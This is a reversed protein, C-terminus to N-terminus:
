TSSPRSGSSLDIGLANHPDQVAQGARRGPHRADDADRGRYLRARRFVEPDRAVLASRLRFVETVEPNMILDLYRQRYRLEVDQLGHWKEPLPHLCKALFTFSACLVTLEGTRTKFLTGRVSIVDGIDLLPFLEYDQAGAMDERIYVQLRSRGDSIHFFTARGMKRITLDPGPGYAQMKEELEDKTLAAFEAVIAPSPTPGDRGQASVTSGRPALKRFKDERALDQDANENRDGTPSKGKNRTRRTKEDITGEKSADKGAQLTKRVADLIGNVFM